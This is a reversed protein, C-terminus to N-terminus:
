KRGGNFTFTAILSFNDFDGSSNNDDAVIRLGGTTAAVFEIQTDAGNGTIQGLTQTGDFSKVTWTGVINAIDLELVYSTGVVTPASAAPLTCYQAAASATITLDGTEDYANIDVNAWASAASFDRDVQNPMKESSTFIINPM